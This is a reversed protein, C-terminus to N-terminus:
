ESDWDELLKQAEIPRMLFHKDRITKRIIGMIFRDLERTYNACKKTETSCGDVEKMNEIDLVKSIIRM